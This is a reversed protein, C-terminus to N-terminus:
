FMRRQTWFKRHLNRSTEMAGELLCEATFTLKPARKGNLRHGILRWEGLQQVNSKYIVGAAAEARHTFVSASLHREPWVHGKVGGVSGAGKGM